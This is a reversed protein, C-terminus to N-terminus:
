KEVEYEIEQYAPEVHEAEPKKGEWLWNLFVKVRNILVLGLPLAILTTFTAAILGYAISIAMPILFQAQFSKEIILPALGAVTTVSTLLIPRFRSVGAELVAQGFAMGSKINRNFATVLVLSDNVMIGILGIIGFFSLLSIQAGHLWHGWGVGIIGLPIMLYILLGQVLSRFTFVIVALMLLLIIPVVEMVSRFVKAQQRSQGEFGYSITPYKALIPPLIEEEINALIDPVSEKDPNNLDAEIRIERKGDLHNIAVVGREIEYTAIEHLPIQKGDATRIRMDEMKSLSSREKEKYRVWVKVEDIGRQLRQVENGFFGQRVQAIVEQLTLGILEAKDKLKINVERIGQQDNDVLDKVSTLNNLENKLEAKAAELEEMNNGLLSVSVPKGFPSASGFSAKDVGPLPGVEERIMNAILFSQMGRREGDLLTVNITGVNAGPGIKKQIKEVMELGDERKANLKESVRWTAAEIKNLYDETINDRTGPPMEISIAIDDREIFPFFTVGIIGGGISGITIFFLATPVALTFVTNKMSFMLFPKYLRDRMFNMINDMFKEFKNKKIETQLSKSHAIHAPLIFAGEILSVALTGMVVFALAPAFDGLRGDLFFFTSFAIITTLVASFVAPLVELTGDVASQLASKGKEYHSYINEGIVIGDDVLIGIVLIMGFLSMVNITLGYFSAFIFMGMMSIPISIAVWFALRLNLFFALVILVLLFGIVGNKTLLDIRQRLNISGDRIITATIVQNKANFSEVYENLEDTIFLVDENITNQVTVVVSPDGDLYNRDPVDSWQDFVDAVDRLKVVTGNENAKLIIDEIGQAYYEKSRARILYEENSTKIKGGTIELNANRVAQSAQQFTINYAQLDEDRFSIEIEEDPFGSLAVKSIGDIALLDTEVKRAKSKLTKLDVPGSLAFSFAFNLNEQKYIVPPEMDSPFSPIRDVANKVDQLILDTDYGKLVEVTITGTNEKSVSSVREVGTVGKLNDEIKLVIGEEIEEPSAGPYVVQININRSEVEPFMTSKLSRLGFYGFIFILIMLVNGAVPYRIFYKILNKM